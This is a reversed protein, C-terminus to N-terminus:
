SNQCNLCHTIIGCLLLHVTLQFCSIHFLYPAGETARMIGDLMLFSETCFPLSCPLLRTANGLPMQGKM